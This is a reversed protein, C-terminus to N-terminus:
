SWKEIMKEIETLTTIKSDHTRTQRRDVLLAHMGARLAPEIDSQLSDGVM